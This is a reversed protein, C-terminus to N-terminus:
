WKITVKEAGLDHAVLESLYKKLVIRFEASDLPDLLTYLISDEVREFCNIITDYDCDGQLYSLATGADLWNIITSCFYDFLELKRKNSLDIVNKASTAVQDSTKM